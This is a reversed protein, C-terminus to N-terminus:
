LASAQWAAISDFHHIFNLVNLTLNDHIYFGVVLEMAVDLIVVSWVPLRWALFFGGLMALSDSLSNLISDGAYCLALLLRQGVSWRPFLYRLLLYFLFGHIIHSFTYWDFLHQSNGVSQM